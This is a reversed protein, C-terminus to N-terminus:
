SRLLGYQKLLKLQKELKDPDSSSDVTLNVRVDANPVAGSQTAGRDVAPANSETDGAAHEQKTEEVHEEPAESHQGNADLAPAASTTAAVAVAGANILQVNEGSPTGLGATVASDIFLQACEDASDPHVDLEKARKAVQAKSVADGHFTDFIRDFVKSSLVARQLLAPLENPLAKDIDKALQSAEYAKADGQMLGFQKLASARVKGPAGSSGFVGPLIGDEAQSAVHTKAVLKKAYELAKQLNIKPFITGGKRGGKPMKKKEAKPTEAM